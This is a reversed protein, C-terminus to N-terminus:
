TKFHGVATNLVQSIQQLEANSAQLNLSQRSSDEAVARVRVMSLNVQDAVVSQQEAATAIQQNMQEITSVAQTIRVLAESAPSARSVSEDTLGRSEQLRGAAQQAVRCLREILTEIEGTSARTRLALGRVEDAVVAFGRGHEGARAAEIAANLALLNTQEAVSKIVDLVGGIASCEDLLEHMVSACGMMETALAETRDAARRVLENGERAQENALLVADNAESTNRAVERATASMQEMSTVAVEAEQRQQEVGNHTHAIVTVLGNATGNLQGVGQSIGSVLGRLSDLMGSFAQLLLGLEDKRNTSKAYSALNGGAIRKALDVAERLPRLIAGRILLSSGVGLSLALLTIFGLQQYAMEGDEAIGRAQEEELASLLEGLHESQKQMGANAQAITDRSSAFQDFAQRYDVLADRADKLSAQGDDGVRLTLTDVASLVDSMGM